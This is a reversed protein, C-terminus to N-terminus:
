SFKLFNSELFIPFPNAVNTSLFIMIIVGIEFSVGNENDIINKIQFDNNNGCGVKIGPINKLYYDDGFLITSQPDIYKLMETKAKCVNERNKLFELHSDGINTIIGYDPLAIKCLLDIEGFNSMGM